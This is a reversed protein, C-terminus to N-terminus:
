KWSESVSRCDERHGFFQALGPRFGSDRQRDSKVTHPNIHGELSFPQGTNIGASEVVDAPARGDYVDPVVVAASSTSGRTHSRRRV